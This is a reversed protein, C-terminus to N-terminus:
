ALKVTKDLRCCNGKLYYKVSQWFTLSHLNKTEYIKMVCYGTIMAIVVCLLISFRIINYDLQFLTINLWFVYVIPFWFRSFIDLRNMIHRTLRYQISSEIKIIEEIKFKTEPKLKKIEEKNKMINTKFRQFSKMATNNINNYKVGVTGRDKAEEVLNEQAKMTM